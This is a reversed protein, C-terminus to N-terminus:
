GASGNEGVWRRVADLSDAPSTNFAIRSRSPAHEHLVNLVKEFLVLHPPPARLGAGIVICAYERERLAKEIEAEATEGMDILLQRPAFGAEQFRALEAELGRRIIGANMQPMGVAAFDILEPILGILLIPPHTAM